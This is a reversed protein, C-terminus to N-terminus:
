PRPPNLEVVHRGRAGRTSNRTYVRAGRAGAAGNWMTAHRRRWPTADGRRVGGGVGRVKKIARFSTRGLRQLKLVLEDGAENTVLYIDSEKGVGIQRGVGSIVGRQLLTRLALFDYGGYTLRYGDYPRSEHYVLKHRLLTGLVKFAGGGRAGALSAILETPVVDHNRMGMEVAGLVRFDEKTLYRLMGAELRM